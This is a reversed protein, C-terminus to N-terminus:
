ENEKYEPRPPTTRSPVTLCAHKQKETAPNWRSLTERRNVIILIALPLTGPAVGSREVSPGRIM